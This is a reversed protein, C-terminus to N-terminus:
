RLATAARCHHSAGVACVHVCRISCNPSCSHNFLASAVPFLGLGQRDAPGATLLPRLAISNAQLQGLMRRAAAAAPARSTGAASRVAAILQALVEQLLQQEEDADSSSSSSSSSSRSSAPPEHHALSALLQAVVHADDAASASLVEAATLCVSALV